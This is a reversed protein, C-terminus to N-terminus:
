SRKSPVFTREGKLVESDTTSQPGLQGPSLSCTYPYPVETRSQLWPSSSEGGRRPSLTPHKKRPSRSPSDLHIRRWLISEGWPCSPPSVSTTVSLTGTTRHDLCPCPYDDVKIHCQSPYFPSPISESHHLTKVSRTRPFRRKWRRKDM